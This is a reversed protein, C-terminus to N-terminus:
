KARSGEWHAIILYSILKKGQANYSTAKNLFLRCVILKVLYMNFKFTFMTNKEFCMRIEKKKESVGERQKKGM